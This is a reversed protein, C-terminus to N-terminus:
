GWSVEKGHIERIGQRIVGGGLVEEGEYMVVRQGPTVDRLPHDFWIRLTNEELVEVVSSVLRAKYRIKVEARFARDPPMGAIWNVNGAILGFFQLDSEEGVVLINDEPIKDVVYYPNPAFIGLGKRQGITYFGLGQHEGVIEGKLNLIKGPQMVDPAHRKLFDRYDQGALFCLDQSDHREAVPLGFARALERVQPKTLEGVPLLTKKLQDQSLVSLVYSQDKNEDIGKLLKVSSDVVRIRAYHGTAMKEAGMAEAHNLLYDWRIFRNCLLCPNPTIGRRYGEFFHEVVVQRFIEQANIAYFPIKLQDAVRRAQAMSDPTCCRNSEERGPESWLRLMVGFVRYGQEVLLAAAVSSDVGGSMAVAVTNESM